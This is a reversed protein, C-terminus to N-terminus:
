LSASSRFAATSTDASCALDIRAQAVVADVFSLDTTVFHFFSFRTHSHLELKLRHFQNEHRLYLYRHSAKFIKSPCAVSRVETGGAIPIYM